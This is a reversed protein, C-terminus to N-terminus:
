KVVEMKKAQAKQMAVMGEYILAGVIDSKRVSEELSNIELVQEHLANPIFIPEPISDKKDYNTHLMTKNANFEKIGAEILMLLADTRKLRRKRGNSDIRQLQMFAKVEKQVHVGVYTGETHIKKFAM